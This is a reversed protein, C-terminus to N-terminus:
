DFANYLFESSIGKETYTLSKFNIQFMLSLYCFIVIIAALYFEKKTM